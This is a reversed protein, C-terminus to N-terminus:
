NVRCYAGVGSGGAAKAVTGILQRLGQARAVYSVLQREVGLGPSREEATGARGPRGNQACCAEGSLEMESVHGPKTGAARPACGNREVGAVVGAVVAPVARESV